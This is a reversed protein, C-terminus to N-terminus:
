EDISNYYRKLAEIALTIAEKRNKATFQSGCIIDGVTINLVKAIKQLSDLTMNHKGSEVGAIYRGTVKTKKALEEQTLGSKKRFVRINKAVILKLDQSM